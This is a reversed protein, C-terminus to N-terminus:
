QSPAVKLHLRFWLIQPRSAPLVKHLSTRSDFRQWGSDDFDPRAYAPDDGEHVLWTAALNTPQRLNTANYSQARLLPVALGLALLAVSAAAARLIWRLRTPIRCVM